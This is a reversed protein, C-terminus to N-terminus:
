RAPATGGLERGPVATSPGGPPTERGPRPGTGAAQQGPHPPEDDRLEKLLRELEEVKSGLEVTERLKAGLELLARAAGLRVSEGEAQLLARLTDAAEAMGDAMRGLARQVMESRLEAVRFRFGPNAMRRTATREGLGAAAAAGRLTQGTALALALAEDANRRGRHAVTLRGTELGQLPM